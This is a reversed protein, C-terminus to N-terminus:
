RHLRAIKQQAQHRRPCHPSSSGPRLRPHGRHATDQQSTSKRPSAPTHRTDLRTRRRLPTATALQRNAQVTCGRRSTTKGCSCHPSRTCPCWWRRTGAPATSAAPTTLTGATRVRHTCSSNYVDIRLSLCVHLCASPCAHQCYSFRNVPSQCLSLSLSLRTRRTLLGPHLPKRKHLSTEHRRRRCHM